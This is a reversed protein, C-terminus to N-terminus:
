SENEDEKKKLKKNKRYEAILQMTLAATKEGIMHASQIQALCRAELEDIAKHFMMLPDPHKMINEWGSRPQNLGNVEIFEAVLDVIPTCDDKSSLVTVEQRSTLWGIFGWLAESATLPLLAGGIGFMSAETATLNGLYGSRLLRDESINTPAVKDKPKGGPKDLLNLGACINNAQTQTIRGKVQSSDMGSPCSQITFQKIHDICFVYDNDGDFPALHWQKSDTIKM